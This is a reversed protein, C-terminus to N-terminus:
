PNQTVSLRYFDEPPTGPTFSYSITTSNNTYTGGSVEEWNDLLGLDTSKQIAYTIDAALPQRKEFSLSTGTFTGVKSNTVTPDQGAIAYEVLNSVGDNDPDDNPGRRDIPVAGNAFTGAIWTSFGADQVLAIKNGEYAYELSYGAPVTPLPAAFATGTLSTYTALVYVPDDLTAVPNLTVVANTIDLGAAAIKGSSGSDAPDISITVPQAAPIAYTAQASTDLTGSAGLNVAPSSAISTTAALALTGETITTAGTYGITGDLLLTGPTTKTLGGTDNIAAVNKLTGSQFNLNDITSGAVGLNSGNLDLTGGNLTLTSTITGAGLDGERINGFVTTTGGTLTMNATALGSNGGSLHKGMLVDVPTGISGITAAGGTQNFNGTVNQVGNTTDSADADNAITIASNVVLTGGNMTFTGNGALAPSQNSSAATTNGAQGILLTNIDVSSGDGFTLTGVGRGRNNSASAGGNGLTLTGILADVTGGTFNMM